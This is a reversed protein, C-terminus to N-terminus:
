QSEHTFSATVCGENKWYHSDHLGYTTFRCMRNVTYPKKSNSSPLM